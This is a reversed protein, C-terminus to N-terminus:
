YLGIVKWWVGGVVAWVALNIAACVAGLRFTTKLDVFGAGYDSDAGILDRASTM